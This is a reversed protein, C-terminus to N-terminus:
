GKFRMERVQLILFLGPRPARKLPRHAAQCPAPRHAKSFRGLLGDVSAVQSASSHTRAQGAPLISPAAPGRDPRGGM